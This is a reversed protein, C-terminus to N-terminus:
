RRDDDFFEYYSLIIPTSFIFYLIVEEYPILFGFYRIMGLFHAGPFCWHSLRLGIYEIIAALIFFYFSVLSFRVIFNPFKFLFISLPIIGFIVGLILYSYNITLLIPDVFALFIFFSLIIFLLLAFNEMKLTIIENTKQFFSFISKKNRKDFFYEYFLVIYFVWLFTWIFQEIVVLDFIRFSFITNKIYWGNDKAILYDFIFTLPTSFFLSFIFTKKFAGGRYVLYLSPIGFFLITSILFNARFFLSITAALVPIVMVIFLDIIIKKKKMFYFM